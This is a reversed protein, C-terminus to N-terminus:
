VSAISVSYKRAADESSMGSDCDKLVRERLDLSYPKPMYEEKFFPRLIDWNRLGVLNGM